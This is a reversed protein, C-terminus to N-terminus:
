KLDILSIQIMVDHPVIEATGKVHWTIPCPQDNADDNTCDGKERSMICLCHSLCCGIMFYSGKRILQLLIQFTIDSPAVLFQVHLAEHNTAAIKKFFHSKIVSSVALCVVRNSQSGCIGSPIVSPATLKAKEVTKQSM